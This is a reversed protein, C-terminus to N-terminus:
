ADKDAHYDRLAQEAHEIKEAFSRLHKTLNERVKDIRPDDPRHRESLVVGEAAQALQHAGTKFPELARVVEPGPHRVLAPTLKALVCDAVTVLSLSDSTVERLWRELVSTSTAAAHLRRAEALAEEVEMRRAKLEGQKTAKRERRARLWENLLTGLVTVISGVLVALLTGWDM